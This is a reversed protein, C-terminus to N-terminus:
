LRGGSKVSSRNASPRGTPRRVAYPLGDSVPFLGFYELTLTRRVAYSLGDSVLSMGFYELTLTRRVAYPLGDSVLSMGFYELTFSRRVAELSALGDSMCVM